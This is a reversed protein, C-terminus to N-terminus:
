RKNRTELYQCVVDTTKSSEKRFDERKVMLLNKYNQYHNIMDDYKERLVDFSLNNINICHDKLGAKTMFGEM